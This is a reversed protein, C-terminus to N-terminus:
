IACTLTESPKMYKLIEFSQEAFDSESRRIRFLVKKAAPAPELTCTVHCPGEASGHTISNLRTSFQHELIKDFCALFEGLKLHCFKYESSERCSEVGIAEQAVRDNTQDM